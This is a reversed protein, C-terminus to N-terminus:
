TVHQSM